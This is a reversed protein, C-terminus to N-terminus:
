QAQIWDAVGALSDAVAPLCEALETVWDALAQVEEANIDPLHMLWEIRVAVIAALWETLDATAEATDGNTLRGLCEFATHNGHWSALDTLKAFYNSTTM